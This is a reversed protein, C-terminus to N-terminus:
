EESRGEQQAEMPNTMRQRLERWWRPVRKGWFDKASLIPVAVAYAAMCRGMAPVLRLATIGFLLYIPAQFLVGYPRPVGGSHWFIVGWTGLHLLGLLPSCFGSMCLYILACAGVAIDIELDHSGLWGGVQGSKRALPGDLVDSIWAVLLIGAALSLAEAGQMVALALMVMACLIRAITLADAAIKTKPM